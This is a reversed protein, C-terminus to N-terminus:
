SNMNLTDEDDSRLAGVALAGPLNHPAFVGYEIGLDPFTGPSGVQPNAAPSFVCFHLRTFWHSLFNQYQSNPSIGLWVSGPDVSFSNNNKHTENDFDRWFSYSGAPCMNGLKLVAYPVNLPTSFTTGSVRCFKFRINLDQATAGIWGSSANANNKDQSDMYIQILGSGSPCGNNGPIVGVDYLASAKAASAGAPKETDEPPAGPAARSLTGSPGAALVAQGTRRGGKTETKPGGANEVKPQDPTQTTVVNPRSASGSTRRAGAPPGAAAFAALLLLLTLTATTRIKM